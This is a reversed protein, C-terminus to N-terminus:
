RPVLTVVWKICGFNAYSHICVYTPWGCAFVDYRYTTIVIKYSKVLVLTQALIEKQLKCERWNLRTYDINYSYIIIYVVYDM